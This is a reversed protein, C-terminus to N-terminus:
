FQCDSLFFEGRNKDLIVRYNGNGGWAEYEAATGPAFWIPSPQGACNMREDGPKLRVLGQTTFNRDSKPLRVHFYFGGEYTFHPYRWYRSRVIQWGKPPPEGFARKWNQPDDDWRGSTVYGCGSLALVLTSTVFLVLRGRVLGM